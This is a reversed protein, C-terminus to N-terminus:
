HVPTQSVATRRVDIPCFSEFVKARLRYENGVRVVVPAARDNALHEIGPQSRRGEYNEIREADGLSGNSCEVELLGHGESKMCGEVRLSRLTPRSWPLRPLPGPIVAVHRASGAQKLSSGRLPSKTRFKIRAVMSTKSSYQHCDYDLGDPALLILSCHQVDPRLHEFDLHPNGDGFHVQSGPGSSQVQQRSDSLVGVRGAYEADYIRATVSIGKRDM